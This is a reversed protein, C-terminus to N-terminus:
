VHGHAIFEHVESMTSLVPIGLVMHARDVERNAGPSPAILFLADSRDLEAFCKKMWREYDAPHHEDWLKFLHPVFANAGLDDIAQGHRFAVRTNEAVGELTPASFPGAVYIRKVAKVM